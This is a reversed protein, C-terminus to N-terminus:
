QLGRIREELQFFCHIFILINFLNSVISILTRKIRYKFDSYIIHDYCKSLNSKLSFKAENNILMKILTLERSFKTYCSNRLFIAMETHLVDPEYYTDLDPWALFISDTM